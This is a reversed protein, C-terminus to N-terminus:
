VKSVMYVMLDVVQNNYGFINDYWFMLKFFHDNFAIIRLEPGLMLPPLALTVTLIAPSM